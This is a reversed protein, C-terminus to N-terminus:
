IEYEMTEFSVVYKSGGNRAELYLLATPDDPDAKHCSVTTKGNTGTAGNLLSTSVDMDSGSKIEEIDGSRADFRFYGWHDFEGANTRTVKMYGVPMPPTIIEATDDPLSFLQLNWATGNHVIPFGEATGDVGDRLVTRCNPSTTIDKFDTRRVQGKVLKVCRKSAPDATFPALASFADCELICETAGAGFHVLNGADAFTPNHCSVEVIVNDANELYVLDGKMTKMNCHINRFFGQNIRANTGSNNVIGSVRAWYDGLDITEVVQDAIHFQFDAGPKENFIDIQAYQGSRIVANSSGIITKAGRVTCNDLVLGTGGTNLKLGWDSFADIDCDRLAWSYALDTPNGVDNGLTIGKKASNLGQLKVREIIGYAADDIEIASADHDGDHILEQDLIQVYDYRSPASKGEGLVQIIPADVTNTIVTNGIGRGTLRDGRGLSLNTEGGYFRWELMDYQRVWAGESGDDKVAKAIYIAQNPDATVEDSLNATSFIFKGERGPESLYADELNGATNGAAAMAAITTYGTGM